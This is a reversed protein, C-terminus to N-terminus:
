SLKKAFYGQHQLAKLLFFGAAATTLGLFIRKVTKLLTPKVAAKVETEAPIHSAVYNETLELLTKSRTLFTKQCEQNATSFSISFVDQFKTKAIDISFLKSVVRLNEKEPDGILSDLCKKIMYSKETIKVKDFWLTISDATILTIGSNLAYSNLAFCIFILYIKTSIRM